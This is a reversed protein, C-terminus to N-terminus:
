TLLPKRQSLEALNAIFAQHVAIVDTVGNPASVAYPRWIGLTDTNNNVTHMFM